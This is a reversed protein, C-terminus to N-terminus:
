LHGEKELLAHIQEVNALPSFWGHPGENVRIGEVGSQTTALMQRAADTKTSIFLCEGRGDLLNYKKAFEYARTSDTFVFLWPKEDIYGVFPAPTETIQSADGVFIWEELKFFETWLNMLDERDGPKLTNRNYAQDALADFDIM